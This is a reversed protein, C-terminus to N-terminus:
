RVRDFGPQVPLRLDYRAGRPDHNVHEFEVTVVRDDTGQHQIRVATRRQARYADAPRQEAGREDLRLVGVAGELDMLECPVVEGTVPRLRPQQEGQQGAHFDLHIETRAGKIPLCLSPLLYQPNAVLANLGRPVKKFLVPVVFKDSAIPRIARMKGPLRRLHQVLRPASELSARGM